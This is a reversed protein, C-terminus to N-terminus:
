LDANYDYGWFQQGAAGYKYRECKPGVTDRYTLSRHERVAAAVAEEPFETCSVQAHGGVDPCRIYYGERYDMHALEVYCLRDGSAAAAGPDAVPLHARWTNTWAFFISPSAAGELSQVACYVHLQDDRRRGHREDLDSEAADICLPRPCVVRLDLLQRARDAEGTANNYSYVACTAHNINTYEDPLDTTLALPALSSLAVAAAAPPPLFAAALLPLLAVANRPPRATAASSTEGGGCPTAIARLVSALAEDPSLIFYAKCTWAPCAAAYFAGYEMYGLEVHCVDSGSYVYARWASPPLIPRTGEITRAVGYGYLDDDDDSGVRIHPGYLASLLRHVPDAFCRPARCVSRLDAITAGYRRVRARARAAAHASAPLDLRTTPPAAQPSPAAADKDDHRQAVPSAEHRGTASSPADRPSGMPLASARPPLSTSNPAEMAAANPLLALLVLSIAALHFPRPAMAM